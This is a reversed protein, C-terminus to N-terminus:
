ELLVSVVSKFFFLRYISYYNNKDPEHRSQKFILLLVVQVFLSAIETLFFFLFFLSIVLTDM